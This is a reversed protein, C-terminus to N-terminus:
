MQQALASSVVLVMFLIAMLFSVVAYLRWLSGPCLRKHENWLRVYKGITWLLWSFRQDTPLRANVEAVTKWVAVNALLGFLMFGAILLPNPHLAPQQM